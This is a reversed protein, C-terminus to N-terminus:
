TATDIFQFTLLHAAPDKARYVALTEKLCWDKWGEAVNKYRGYFEAHPNRSAIRRVACVMTEHSVVGDYVVVKYAVASPVVLYETNIGPFKGLEHMRFVWRSVAPLPRSSRRM